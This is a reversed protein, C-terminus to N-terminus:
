VKLTPATFAQPDLAKVAGCVTVIGYGAAPPPFPPAGADRGNKQYTRPSRSDIGATAM